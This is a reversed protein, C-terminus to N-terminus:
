PPLAQEPGSAQRNKQRLDVAGGRRIREAPRSENFFSQRVREQLEGICAGCAYM